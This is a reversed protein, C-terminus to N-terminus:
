SCRYLVLGPRVRLFLISLYFFIIFYIFLYILFSHYFHAFRLSVSSTHLLVLGSYRYSLLLVLFALIILILLRVGLFLAAQWLLQAASKYRREVSQKM